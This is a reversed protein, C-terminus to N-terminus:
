ASSKNLKMEYFVDSCENETIDWDYVSKDREDM